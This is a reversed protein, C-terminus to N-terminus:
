VVWIYLTWAADDAHVRRVPPLKRKFLFGGAGHGACRECLPIHDETRHENVIASNSCFEALDSQHPSRGRPSFSSARRAKLLTRRPTNQWPPTAWNDRM